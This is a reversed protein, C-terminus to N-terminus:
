VRSYEKLNYYYFNCNHPKTIFLALLLLVCILVNIECPISLPLERYKQTGKGFNYLFLRIVIYFLDLLFLM